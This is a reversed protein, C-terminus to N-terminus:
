LEGGESDSGPEPEAWELMFDVDVGAAVMEAKTEPTEAEGLVKRKTYNLWALMPKADDNNTWEVWPANNADSPSGEDCPVGNRAAALPCKGCKDYSSPRNFHFCLACNSGATDFQGDDFTMNGAFGVPGFAVHRRLADEQLGQWKRISHDLAEEVTTEEVPKPFFEDKWSQLSM